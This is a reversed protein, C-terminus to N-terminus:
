ENVSTMSKAAFELIEIGKMVSGSIMNQGVETEFLNALFQLCVKHYNQIVRADKDAM